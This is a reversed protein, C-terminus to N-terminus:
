PIKKRYRGGPVIRASELTGNYLYIWCQLTGGTSLMVPHLIRIFLSTDSANPDFGEYEDLHRLFEEDQPLESLAGYVKETCSTDLVAGPYDGLDYLLGHVFGEGAPRLKDVAAAIEYPAHGLRLTGYTFLYASM